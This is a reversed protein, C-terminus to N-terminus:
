SYARNLGDQRTVRRRVARALIDPDSHVLTFQRSARTVATYILERTLIPVDHGPLVLATHAFESGQSKHVTMAFATEVSQLRTPSVWRVADGDKGPFAVRLRLRGEADPCPLVIGIDGNMLKLNYDNRTLM